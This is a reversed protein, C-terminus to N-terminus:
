EEAVVRNRLVGIGQIDVECLDGPKLLLPPKRAMGVGCPTGTYIATGPLLTMSRSLYSVLYPVNFVMDKTSQNQVTEGNVRMRILLDSPDLGTVVYPGMPAFTDFSKARAWQGDSQQCDRASVDHGCTYGFVYDLAKEMPVNKTKRGIIAVLEAEYDVKEPAAAPIVISDEHAIVATTAKIFLLPAKPLEDDTEAAHERYNRGIAMINPPDVPPLYRAIDAEALVEGTSEPPDLLGGKLVRISGDQEVLGYVGQSHRATTFRVLKM